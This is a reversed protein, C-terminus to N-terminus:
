DILMLRFCSVRTTKLLIRIGMDVSVDVSVVDDGIVIVIADDDDDNDLDREVARSFLVVDLNFSLLLLCCLSTTTVDGGGM